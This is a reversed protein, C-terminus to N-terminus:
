MKPELEELRFLSKKKKSNKKIKSNKETYGIYCFTGSQPESIFDILKPKSITKKCWFCTWPIVDKPECYSAYSLLLNEKMLNLDTEPTIRGNVFFTLLLFYFFREIM